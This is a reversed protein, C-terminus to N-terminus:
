FDGKGPANDPRPLISSPTSTTVVEEFKRLESIINWAARPIREKQKKLVDDVYLIGKNSKSGVIEQNVSWEPRTFNQLLILLVYAVLAGKVLGFAGGLFRDFTGFDLKIMLKKIFHVLFMWLIWTAIFLVTFPIIVVTFPPLQPSIEVLWDSLYPTLQFDVFISGAVGLIGAIQTFFGRSLGVILSFLLLAFVGIDVWNLNAYLEELFGVNLM